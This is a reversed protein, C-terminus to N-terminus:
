EDEFMTPCLRADALPNDGERVTLPLRGRSDTMYSGVKVKRLYGVREHWLQFTHEGAPLHKISFRGNPDSKAMYPSDRLLVYGKM